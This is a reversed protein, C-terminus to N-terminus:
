RGYNAEKFNENHKIEKVREFSRFTVFLMTIINVINVNIICKFDIILTEKNFNPIFNINYRKIRFLKTMFIYIFSTIINSLGYLTATYAADGLGIDCKFDIKINTKYKIKILNEILKMIVLKRKKITKKANRKIKRQDRKSIDAKKVNSFLLIKYLYIKFENNAFLVRIKIPFKIFLFAIFFLIIYYYIKM